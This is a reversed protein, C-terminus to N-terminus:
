LKLAKGNFERDMRERTDKVHRRLEAAEDDSLIGVLDFLSRSKTLRKVVDTFSENPGKLSALREYAESTITICKTSM